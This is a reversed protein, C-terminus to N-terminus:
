RLLQLSFTKSFLLKLLKLDEQLWWAINIFKEITAFFYKRTFRKFIVEVTCDIVLMVTPQSDAQTSTWFMSRQCYLLVCDILNHKDLLCYSLSSPFKHINDIWSDGQHRLRCSLVKEIFNHLKFLPSYIKDWCSTILLKRWM